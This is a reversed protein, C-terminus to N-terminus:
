LSLLKAYEKLSEKLHCVQIAKLRITLIIGVALMLVILPIGWVIEDNIFEIVKNVSAFM